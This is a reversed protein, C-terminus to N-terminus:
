PKGAAKRRAVQPRHVAGVAELAPNGRTATAAAGTDLVTGGHSEEILKTQRTETEGYAHADPARGQLGSVGNNVQQAGHAINAQQVFAVARPNKIEGLTQLTARSQSQAKLALRMYTETADMYQGLNLGARRVLEIFLADLTTAQAVLMEEVSGLSGNKVGNARSRIASVFEMLDMEGVTPKMYDRTLCAHMFAPEAALESLVQPRTKDSREVVRYTNLSDDKKPQPSVKMSKAARTSTATTEGRKSKRQNNGISGGGDTPKM